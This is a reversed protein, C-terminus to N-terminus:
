IAQACVTELLMGISLTLIAGSIGDVAKREACGVGGWPEQESARRPLSTHARGQDRGLEQGHVHVQAWLSGPCHECDRCGPARGLAEHAPCPGIQGGTRGWPQRSEALHQKEGAQSHESAEVGLRPGPRPSFFPAGWPHIGQDGGGGGSQWRGGM